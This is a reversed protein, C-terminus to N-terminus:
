NWQSWPHFIMLDGLSLTVHLSPSTILKVVSPPPARFTLSLCEAQMPGPSLGSCSSLPQCTLLPVSGQASVLSLTKASARTGLSGAEAETGSGSESYAWM